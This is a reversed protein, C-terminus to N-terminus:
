SLGCPHRRPTWGHRLPHQRFHHSCRHPRSSNQTPLQRCPNRCPHWPRMRVRLVRLPHRRFPQRHPQWSSHRCNRRRGIRGQRRPRRQRRQRRPRGQRRPRRQLGQFVLRWFRFCRRHGETLIRRTTAAASRSRTKTFPPHMGSGGGGCVCGYVCVCVCVCLCGCVCVFLVRAWLCRDWVIRTGERM